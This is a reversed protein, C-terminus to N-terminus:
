IRLKLPIYNFHDACIEGCTAILIKHQISMNIYLFVTLNAREVIINKLPSNWIEKCTKMLKVCVIRHKDGKAERKGRIPMSTESMSITQSQQSPLTHDANQMETLSLTTGDDLKLSTIFRLTTENKIHEYTPHLVTHYDLQLLENHNCVKTLVPMINQIYIAGSFYFHQHCLIFIKSNM